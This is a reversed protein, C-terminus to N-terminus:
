SNSVNLSFFTAMQRCNINISIGCCALSTSGVPEQVDQVDQVDQVTHAPLTRVQAVGARVNQPRRHFAACKLIM